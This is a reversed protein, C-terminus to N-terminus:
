KKKRLMLCAALAVLACASLILAKTASSGTPVTDNKEVTKDASTDDSDTTSDTQNESESESTSDGTSETDGTSDTDDTYSDAFNFLETDGNEMRVYATLALLADRTVFYDAGAEAGSEPDYFGGGELLFGLLGDLLTTGNENTYADFVEAGLETVAIIAQATTSPNLADSSFIAGSGPDQQAKLYAFAAIIADFEPSDESAVLPTLGQIVQVTALTSVADDGPLDTFGTGSVYRTMIETKLATEIADADSLEPAYYDTLLLAYALTATSAAAYDDADAATFKDLLNYDGFDAADKHMAALALGVRVYEAFAETNTEDTYVGGKDAFDQSANAYYTECFTDAGDLGSRALAIVYWEDGYTPPTQTFFQDVAYDATSKLLADADQETAFATVSASCLLMVGTIAACIFKKM